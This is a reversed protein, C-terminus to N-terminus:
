HVARGVSARMFFIRKATKAVLRSAVTLEAWSASLGTTLLDALWFYAARGPTGSQAVSETRRPSGPLPAEITSILNVEPQMTGQCQCVLASLAMGRAPRRSIEMFSSLGIM